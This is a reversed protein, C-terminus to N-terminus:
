GEVIYVSRGRIAALSEPLESSHSSELLLSLAKSMKRYGSGLRQGKSLAIAEKVDTGNRDWWAADRM